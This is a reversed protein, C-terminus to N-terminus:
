ESLFVYRSCVQQMKEFDLSPRKSRTGKLKKVLTPSKIAKRYTHQNGLQSQSRRLTHYKQTRHHVQSSDVMSQLNPTPSAAVNEQDQPKATVAVAAETDEDDSEEVGEHSCCGIAACVEFDEDDTAPGSDYATHTVM